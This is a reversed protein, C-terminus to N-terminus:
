FPTYGEKLLEEYTEEQAQAVEPSAEEAEMHDDTLSRRAALEGALEWEELSSGAM